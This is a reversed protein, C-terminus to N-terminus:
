YSMVSGYFRNLDRTNRTYLPVGHAKATNAILADAALRRRQSRSLLRLDFGAEIGIQNTVQLEEIFRLLARYQIEEVRGLGSYQWLELTTVPSVGASLAGKIANAVLTGAGPDGRWYDIFVTTDFLANAM